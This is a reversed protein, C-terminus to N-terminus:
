FPTGGAKRADMACRFGVDNCTTELGEFGQYSCRAQHPGYAHAGGRIIGRSPGDATLGYWTRDRHVDSVWEWVNGAMDHCGYISVSDPHSGVPQKGHADTGPAKVNARGDEFVDGWPYRRGDAGRAAKEWEAGTPLRRGVFHAYAEADAKLVRTVPLHDAGVPYSHAPSFAKYQANTVEHTDIYFAPLWVSCAGREDAEVDPDDSGMIFTGAPVLVMGQPPPAYSAIETRHRWYAKVATVPLLGALPFALVLGLLWRRRSKAAAPPRKM